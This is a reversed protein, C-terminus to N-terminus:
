LVSAESEQVHHIGGNVIVDKTKLINEIKLISAKCMEQTINVGLYKIIKINDQTTCIKFKTGHQNDAIEIENQFCLLNLNLNLM